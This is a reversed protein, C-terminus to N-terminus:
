KQLPVVGTERDGVGVVVVCNYVEVTRRKPSGFHADGKPTM